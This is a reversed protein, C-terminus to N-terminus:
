PYFYLEIHKGKLTPRKGIIYRMLGESKLGERKPFTYTMTCVFYGKHMVDFRVSISEGLTKQAHSKESQKM